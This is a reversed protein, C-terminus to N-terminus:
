RNVVGMCNWKEASVLCYFNGLEYISQQYEDDDSYLNCCNWSVRLDVEFSTSNELFTSDGLILWLHEEASRDNRRECRITSRAFIDQNKRRGTHEFVPILTLKWFASSHILKWKSM